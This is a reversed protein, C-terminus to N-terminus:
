AQRGHGIASLSLFVALLVLFLVMYIYLLRRAGLYKEMASSSLAIGQYAGNKVGSLIRYAAKSRSLPIVGRVRVRQIMDPHDTELVRGFAALNQFYMIGVFLAALFCVFMILALVTVM